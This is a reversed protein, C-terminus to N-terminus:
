IADENTSKEEKEVILDILRAELTQNIAKFLADGQGLKQLEDAKQLVVSRTEIKQLPVVGYYKEKMITDLEKSIDAMPDVKDSMASERSRRDNKEHDQIQQVQMVFDQEAEAATNDMAAPFEVVMPPDSIRNEDREEMPYEHEEAKSLMLFEKLEAITTRKKKGKPDGNGGHTPTFGLGGSGTTAVTGVGAGEKRLETEKGKEEWKKFRLDNQYLTDVQSFLAQRLQTPLHQGALNYVELFRGYGKSKYLHIFSDYLEMELQGADHENTM